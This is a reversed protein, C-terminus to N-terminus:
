EHSRQLSRNKAGRRPWSPHRRPGRIRATSHVYRSDAMSRFYMIAVQRPLRRARADAAAGDPFTRTRLSHAARTPVRVAVSALGRTCMRVGTVYIGREGDNHSGRAVRVAPRQALSIPSVHRRALMEKKRTTTTRKTYRSATAAARRSKLSIKSSTYIDSHSNDVHKRLAFSPTM